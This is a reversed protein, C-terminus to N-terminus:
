IQLGTGKVLLVPLLPTFDESITKGPSGGYNNFREKSNIKVM